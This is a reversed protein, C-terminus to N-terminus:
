AAVRMIWHLAVYPPLNEHAQGGGASGSTGSNAQSSVRTDVLQSGNGIYEYRADSVPTLDPILHTHGPMQEATLTVTAAGGEDGKAYTVGALTGVGVLCRGRLDPTGGTGDCLRWGSPILDPAHRWATIVGIPVDLGPEEGPFANLALDGGGEERLKLSGAVTDFWVDGTEPAEGAMRNRLAPLLEEYMRELEALIKGLAEATTDGAATFDVANEIEWMAM